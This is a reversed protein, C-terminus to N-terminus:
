RCIGAFILPVPKHSGKPCNTTSKPALGVPFPWFAFLWTAVKWDVWPHHCRSIRPGLPRWFHWRWWSTEAASSGVETREGPGKDLCEPVVKILVEWSGWQIFLCTLARVHLFVRWVFLCLFFPPPFLLLCRFFYYLCHHSCSIEEKDRQDKSIPCGLWSWPKGSQATHM